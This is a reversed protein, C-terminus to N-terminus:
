NRKPMDCNTIYWLGDAKLNIILLQYNVIMTSVGQTEEKM